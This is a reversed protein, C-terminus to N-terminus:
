GGQIIHGRDACFQSDGGAIRKMEEAGLSRLTERALTLKRTAEQKKM